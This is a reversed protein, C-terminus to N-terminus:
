ISGIREPSSSQRADLKKRRTVRHTTNHQTTDHKNHPEDREVTGYFAITWVVVVVMVLVVVVWGGDGDDCDRCGSEWTERERERCSM